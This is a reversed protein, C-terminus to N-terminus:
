EVVLTAVDSISANAIIQAANCIHTVYLVFFIPKQNKSSLLFESPTIGVSAVALANRVLTDFEGKSKVSNHVIFNRVKQMEKYSSTFGNLGREIPNGTGFLSKSLKKVIDLQSWDPYTATGRILDHAHDSDVPSIYCSVVNGLRSPEKLAYAITIDELFHEWETFIELFAQRVVLDRIMKQDDSSLFTSNNVLSVCAKSQDCRQILRRYVDEVGM